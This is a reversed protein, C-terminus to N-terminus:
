MKMGLIESASLNYDTVNGIGICPKLLLLSAIDGGIVGGIVTGDVVPDEVLEIVFDLFDRAVGRIHDARTRV